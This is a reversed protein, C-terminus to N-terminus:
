KILAMKRVATQPPTGDLPQAQLRCFYVGSAHRTGDWLVEHVGPQMLGRRLTEVERGLLDYVALRVVSAESLQYRIATSPNFPNPYNQELVFRLPIDDGKEVSVPIGTQRLIWRDPDLVVSDPPFSLPIRVEQTRLSDWVIFTTDKGPAYARVQVPM